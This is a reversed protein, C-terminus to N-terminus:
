TIDNRLSMVKAVAMELTMLRRWQESRFQHESAIMFQQLLDTNFM